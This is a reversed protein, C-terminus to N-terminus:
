HVAFVPIPHTQAQELLFEKSILLLTGVNSLKINEWETFNPSRYPILLTFPVHPLQLLHERVRSLVRM